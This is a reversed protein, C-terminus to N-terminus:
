QIRGPRPRRASKRRWDVVRRPNERRLFSVEGPVGGAALPRIVGRWPAKGELVSATGLRGISSRRVYSPPVVMPLCNLTKLVITLPRALRRYRQAPSAPRLYLVLAALVCLVDRACTRRQKGLDILGTVVYAGADRRWACWATAVHATRQAPRRPRNLARGFFVVAPGCRSSATTGSRATAGTRSLGRACM